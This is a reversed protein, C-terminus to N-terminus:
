FLVEQYVKGRINLNITHGKEPRVYSGEPLAYFTRTGRAGLSQQRTTLRGEAVLESLYTYFHWSPSMDLKRAITYATAEPFQDNQAMIVLALIIQEKREERTFRRNPM